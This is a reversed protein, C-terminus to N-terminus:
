FKTVGSYYFSQRISMKDTQKSPRTSRKRFSYEFGLNLPQFMEPSKKPKLKKM